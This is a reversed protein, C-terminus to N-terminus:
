ALLRSQGLAGRWTKVGGFPCFTERACNKKRAFADTKVILKVNNGITKSHLLCAGFNYTFSWCFPHLM